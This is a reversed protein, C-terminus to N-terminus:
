ANNYEKVWEFEIREKPYMAQALEIAHEVANSWESQELAHPHVNIHGSEAGIKIGVVWYM